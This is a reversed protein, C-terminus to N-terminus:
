KMISMYVHLISLIVGAVTVTSFIAVIKEESWGSMEYHHHIPSMKFIRKGKTIKFYTVQLIVSGAECVYIFGLLFLLEPRGICYAITVVVGGLFMSGVDGMFIKAPHFNWGLFGLCGGAIAAAFLSIVFEGTLATILVFGVMVVFTVSTALGDIGDTLNVANVMAIILLFSFPYFMFGLDIYGIFPINMITTLSGNYYLSALFIATILVQMIIKYRALLGLNRKKVVKIFDDVLGVFGFAFSTAVALFLNQAQRDNAINIDEGVNIKMFIYALVVAVISGVIFMIGGMTPTNQKNKHWVPGIEKITQGFKLRRLWPVLVVGLLSTILVAVVAAIVIAFRAM